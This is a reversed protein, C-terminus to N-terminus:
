HVVKPYTKYSRRLYKNDQARLEFLGSTGRPSTSHSYYTKAFANWPHQEYLLM